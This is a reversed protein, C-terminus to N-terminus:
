YRQQSGAKAPPVFLSPVRPHAPSGLPRSFSSLLLCIRGGCPHLRRDNNSRLKSARTRRADNPTFPDYPVEKHGSSVKILATRRADRVRLTRRVPPKTTHQAHEAAQLHFDEPWGSPPSPRTIICPSGGRPPTRLCCPAFTRT